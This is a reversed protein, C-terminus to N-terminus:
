KPLVGLRITKIYVRGIIPIRYRPAPKYDNDNLKNLLLVLTAPFYPNQFTNVYIYYMKM